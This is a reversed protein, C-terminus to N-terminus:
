PWSRSARFRSSWSRCRDWRGPPPSPGAHDRRQRHPFGAAPYVYFRAGGRGQRCVLPPSRDERDHSSRWSTDRANPHRLPIERGGRADNMSTSCPKAGARCAGASADNV